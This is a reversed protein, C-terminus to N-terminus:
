KFFTETDITKELNSSDIKTQEIRQNEQYNENKPNEKYFINFSYLFSLSIIGAAPLIKTFLLTATGLYGATIKIPDRKEKPKLYERILTYTLVGPLVRLSWYGIKKGTKKWDVNKIREKSNSYNKELYM